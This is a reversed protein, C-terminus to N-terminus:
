VGSIVIAGSASSAKMSADTSTSSDPNSCSAVLISLALLKFNRM